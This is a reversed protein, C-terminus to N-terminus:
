DRRPQARVEVISGLDVVDQYYVLGGRVEKARRLTIGQIDVSLITGDIPPGTRVVIEADRGVLGALRASEHPSVIDIRTMAAHRRLAASIAADDLEFRLAIRRARELLEEAETWRARDALGDSDSVLAAVIESAADLVLRHRPDVRAAAALHEIAADLEGRRLAVRSEAIEAPLAERRAAAIPDRPVPTPTPTPEPQPTATAPPTMAAALSEDLQHLERRVVMWAAISAVALTILLISLVPTPRIRDRWPLPESPQAAGWETPPPPPASVVRRRESGTDAVDAASDLDELAREVYRVERGVTVFGLSEFAQEVPSLQRALARLSGAEPPSSSELCELIETVRPVLDALVQSRQGMSRCKREIERLRALITRLDPASSDAPEGGEIRGAGPARTEDTM